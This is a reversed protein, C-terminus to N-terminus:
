SCRGHSCGDFGGLVITGPDAVAGARQVHRRVQQSRPSHYTGTDCIMSIQECTSIQGSNLPLLCVRFACRIGEAQVIRIKRLLLFTYTIAVLTTHWSVNQVAANRSYTAACPSGSRKYFPCTHDSIADVYFAAHLVLPPVAASSMADVAAAMPTNVSVPTAAASLDADM